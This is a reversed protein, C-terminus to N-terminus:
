NKRVYRWLLEAIEARRQVKAAASSM